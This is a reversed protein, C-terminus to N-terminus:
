DIGKRGRTPRKSKYLFSKSLKFSTRTPNNTPQGTPQLSPVTTPQSSPVSTPYSSPLSTPHSSPYSSPRSTPKHSSSLSPFSTPRSSPNSSPKSSPRNSPSSTPISSPTTSPHSSPENSPISTPSSSPLRSPISSPRSTPLSSPENSPKSTPNFTPQSPRSTPKSSPNSSAFTTPKSSPRLSPHTTPKSSPRTTPSSSPKRSPKSSPQGTPRSSPQSSPRSSPRFSPHSTPRSTPQIVPALTPGSLAQGLYYVSDDSLVYEEDYGSQIWGMKFYNSPTLTMSSDVLSVITLASVDYYRIRKNGYDSILLNGNSDLALTTPNNLLASTAAGNDGGYGLTGSGVVTSMISTSVSIFRVKHNASDSVYLNGNTDGIIGMPSCLNANIAALGDGSSGCIGSGGALAYIINTSFSYQMVNNMFQDTIFLNSSTDRWMASIQLFRFNTASSTSQAGKVSVTNIINDTTVKRIAYNSNDAIYINGSTDLKVSYPGGFSASTASGGDGAYTSTSYTGAVLSVINNQVKRIVYNGTDAFYIVGSTTVYVSRPNNMKCSTATPSGGDGTTGSNGSGVATSVVYTGHTILRIKNNNYDAVYIDKSTTVFVEQPYDFLATTAAGDTSGSSTGSTGGGAITSIIKTSMNIVRIKNNYTDAIYLQSNSEDIFLSRPSYLLASSAQGGDGSNGSTGATGAYTSVIGASSIKRIIHGDFETLYMDGNTVVSIGFPKNFSAYLAQGGDGTSSAAGTGAICKISTPSSSMAFKYVKYDNATVYINGSSDIYQKNMSGSGSLRIFSTSSYINSTAANKTLIGNSITLLVNSATFFIDGTTAVVIASPNTLPTSTAASGSVVTGSVGTGAITTIIGDAAVKRLVYNGYDAIYIAGNSDGYCSYPGKLTASIAQGGDGSYGNTGSGAFAYINENSRLVKRVRNGGSSTSSDCVYLDGLTNIFLGRPTLFNASTAPGNDGTSGSTGFTGAYVSIIGNVDIKRVVYRGSGSETFYFEGLTNMTIGYLGSLTASTAAMGFATTNSGGGAFLTIINTAADIRRITKYTNDAIYINNNTDIINYYSIGIKAKLANDGLGTNGSTGVGAKLIVRDTSSEVEYLRYKSSDFIFLNGDSDLSLAAATFSNSSVQLGNNSLTQNGWYTTKAGNGGAIKSISLDEMVYLDGTSHDGVMGHVSSLSSKATQLSLSSTTPNAASSTSVYIKSADSMYLYGNTNRWVGTISSSSLASGDATISLSSLSASTISSAQALSGFSQILYFFSIFFMVSNGM